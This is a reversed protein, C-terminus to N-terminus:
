QCLFQVNDIVYLHLNHILPCVYSVTVDVFTYVTYTHIINFSWQRLTAGGGRERDWPTHVPHQPLSLAPHEVLLHLLPRVHEQDAGHQGHGLAEPEGVLDPLAGAPQGTGLQDEAVPLYRLESEWTSDNDDNTSGWPRECYPQETISLNKFFFLITLIICKNLM